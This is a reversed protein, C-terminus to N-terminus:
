ISRDKIFEAKTEINLLASEVQTSICTPGKGTIRKILIVKKKEVQM